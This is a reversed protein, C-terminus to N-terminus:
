APTDFLNKCSLQSEPNKQCSPRTLIDLYRPHSAPHQSQRDSDLMRDARPPQFPHLRSVSHSLPQSSCTRVPEAHRWWRRVHEQVCNQGRHAGVRVIHRRPALAREVQPGQEKACAGDQAEARSGGVREHHISSSHTCVELHPGGGLVKALRCQYAKASVALCRRQSSSLAGITM